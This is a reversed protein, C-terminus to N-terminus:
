GRGKRGVTSDKSWGATLFQTPPIRFLTLQAAGKSSSSPEETEEEDQWSMCFGAELCAHFLRGVAEEWWDGYDQWPKM